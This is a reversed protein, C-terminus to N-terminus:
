TYEHVRARWVEAIPLFFRTGLLSVLPIALTGGLGGSRGVRIEHNEFKCWRSLVILLLDLPHM